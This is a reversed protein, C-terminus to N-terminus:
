EKRLVMKDEELHVIQYIEKSKLWYKKGKEAVFYNLELIYKEDSDFLEWVGKQWVPTRRLISTKADYGCHRRHSPKIHKLAFINDSKTFKLSSSARYRENNVFFDGQERYVLEGDKSELKSFAWENHIFDLDVNPSEQAKVKLSFLCNFVLLLVVYTKNQFRM